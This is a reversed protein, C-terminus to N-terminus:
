ETMSKYIELLENKRGVFTSDLRVAELYSEKGSEINGMRLSVLAHTFHAEALGPALEIAQEAHSRAEDLAGEKLFLKAANIHPAPFSPNLEIADLYFRKAEEMNGSLELARGLNNCSECTGPSVRLVERFYDVAKEYEGKRSMAVGLNNLADVHGPFRKLVEKFHGIADDNNGTLVLLNGYNNHNEAEHPNVELAKLFYERAGGYEGERLLVLAMNNLVRIDDPGKTIAERFEAMAEETRGNRALALALNAHARPNDPSLRVAEKGHKLAGEPDDLSFLLLAMNSHASQYDPNIRLAEEFHPYADRFRGRKAICVGLNNHIVFNNKTVSIARTFLTFGNRWYKVQIWTATTLACIVTVALLGNLIDRRRMKRTMDGVAWVVIISLGITPLYTYRDAHSQVGVQVIGIVPVLMGIYWFWGVALYRRNRFFVVFVATVAAIALAAFFGQWLPLSRAPHPYLVALKCPAVTQGIYRVYSVFANAIRPYIALTELNKTAGGKSQAAFTAVSSLLSLLILPVKERVLATVTRSYLKNNGTRSDATAAWSNRIRKLPWYDLLLLVFPLTVLMPKAMLGLAFLGFVVTYRRPGPRRCYWGYAGITLLFFFASLVDKREAIWAVSEVHLPHLAFLAAVVASQWLAGTIYRLVLFLLVANMVHFFVNVLHHGAPDLGFLTVDLMHSLWTLPHWNAAYGSTFAWAASDPTIGKLVHPNEIIYEYDDYEVFDYGAVQMYVASTAAVLLFVILISYVTTHDTKM